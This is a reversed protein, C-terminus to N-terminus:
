QLLDEGPDEEDPPKPKGFAQALRDFFSSARVRRESKRPM